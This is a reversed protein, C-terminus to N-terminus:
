LRYLSRLVARRLKETLVPTELSMPEDSPHFFLQDEQNGSRVYYKRFRDLLSRGHGDSKEEAHPQEFDEEEDADSAGRDYYGYSRPFVHLFKKAFILVM